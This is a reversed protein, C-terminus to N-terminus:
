QCERKGRSRMGFAKTDAVTQDSLLGCEITQLMLLIPEFPAVISYRRRKGFLKRSGLLVVVIGLGLVLLEPRL